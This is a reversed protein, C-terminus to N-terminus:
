RRPSSPLCFRQILGCLIDIAPAIQEQAIFENPQHAQDISGPGLVLTEIGLQQLFPAETAFAVAESDHQSLEEAAQVLSSHKDEAFPEVGGFLTEMEIRVQRRQAVQEVRERISQRLEENSMGPIARLDFQMACDACIRNPNDGGHICGFNMTPTPVAFGPNSYQEQLERRFSMLEGMVEHMAEMANNGLDPNSSHGSQGTIRLEEMMIGKHMYIPKLGTPEGIVAYRAQGEQNFGQSALANAGSMSSEEDATALVILPQEFEADEFREVAALITPFFGKMDTAGLGYFRQDKDELTFPDSQWRGEDYPVTDTHGALVLGGQGTGRTAILNAKNEHGDVPLIQVEFSLAELWNALTHIVTINGMDWQPSHSSVSPIKVLEALRQSFLKENM